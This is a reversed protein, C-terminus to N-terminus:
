ARVTVWETVRAVQRDLDPRQDHSSVRAYVVVGGTVGRAAPVKVLITGTETQQAPV